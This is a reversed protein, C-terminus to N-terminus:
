DTSQVLYGIILIILHLLILHTPRTICLPMDSHMIIKTKFGLPFLGNPFTPLFALINFYTKCLHPSTYHVPNLQTMPCPETVPKQSCPLSGETEMLRLTYIHHRLFARDLEQEFLLDWEILKYITCFLLM